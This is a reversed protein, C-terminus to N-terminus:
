VKFQEPKHLEAKRKAEQSAVPKGTLCPRGSIEEQLSCASCSAAGSGQWGQWMATVWCWRSEALLGALGTLEFVQMAKQATRM